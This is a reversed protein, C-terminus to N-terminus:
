AAPTKKRAAEYELSRTIQQWSRRRLPAAIRLLKKGREDAATRAQAIADASPSVPGTAPAEPGSQPSPHSRPVEASNSTELAGTGPTTVAMPSIGAVGLISHLLARNEDRVRANEARLRSSEGQERALAAELARAYPTKWQLARSPHTGDARASRIRRWISTLRM